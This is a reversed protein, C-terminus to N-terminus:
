QHGKQKSKNLLKHYEDENLGFIKKVLIRVGTDISDLQKKEDKGLGESATTTAHLKDYNKFYDHIIEKIVDSAKKGTEEMLSEIGSISLADTVRFKSLTIIEEAM